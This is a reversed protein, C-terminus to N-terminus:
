AGPAVVRLVIGAILVATGIIIAILGGIKPAGVQPRRPWSEMFERMDDTRGAIRDSYGKVERRGWYIAGAGLLIFAGGMVILILWDGQPM